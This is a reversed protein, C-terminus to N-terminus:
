LRVMNLVIVEWDPRILHMNQKVIRQVEQVNPTTRIIDILGQDAFRLSQLLHFATPFVDGRYDVSHPSTHILGALDGLADIVLKPLPSATRM